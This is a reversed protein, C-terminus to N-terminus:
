FLSEMEQRKKKARELEFGAEDASRRFGAAEALNRSMNAQNRFEVMQATLFGEQRRLEELEQQKYM